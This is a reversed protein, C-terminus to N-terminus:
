CSDTNNGNYSNSHIGNIVSRTGNYPNTDGSYLTSVVAVCSRM